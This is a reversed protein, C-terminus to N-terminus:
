TLGAERLMCAAHDIAGDRMPNTDVVGVTVNRVGPIARLERLQTETPKTSSYTSMPSFNCSSIWRDKGTERDAPDHHDRHAPDAGAWPLHTEGAGPHVRQEDGQVAAGHERPRRAMVGDIMAQRAEVRVFQKSKKM